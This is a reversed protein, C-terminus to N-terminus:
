VGGWEDDVSSEFSVAREVRKYISKAWKIFIYVAPLDSMFLLLSSPVQNWFTDFCPLSWETDFVFTFTFPQCTGSTANVLINLLNVPLSLLSDLPGAPLLGQVGSMGSVDINPDSNDSIEDAIKKTNEATEKTNQEIAANSSSSSGIKSNISELLDFINGYRFVDFCTPFRYNFEVNYSSTGIGSYYIRLGTVSGTLRNVPCVFYSSDAYCTSWQGTSILYVSFGFDDVDLNFGSTANSSLSRLSYTWTGVIYYTDFSNDFPFLEDVDYTNDFTIAKIGASSGITFNGSVYNNFPCYNGEAEGQPITLAFANSRAFMLILGISVGIAVRWFYYSIKNKLM